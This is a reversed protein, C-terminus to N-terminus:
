PRSSSVHAADHYYWLSPKSCGIVIFCDFSASARVTRSYHSLSCCSCAVPPFHLVHSTCICFVGFTLSVGLQELPQGMGRDIDEGTLGGAQRMAVEELLNFVGAATQHRQGHAGPQEAARAAPTSALHPSLLPVFLQMYCRMLFRILCKHKYRIHGNRWVALSSM